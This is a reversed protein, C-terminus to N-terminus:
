SERKFSFHLKEVSPLSKIQLYFSLLITSEQVVTYSVSYYMCLPGCPTFLVPIRTWKRLSTSNSEGTQEAALVAEDLNIM